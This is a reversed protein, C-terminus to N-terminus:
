AGSHNLLEPGDKLVKTKLDRVCRISDILFILRSYFNGLFTLGFVSNFVNRDRNIINM